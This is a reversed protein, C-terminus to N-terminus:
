ERVRIRQSDVIWLRHEVSEGELVHILRRILSLIGPIDQSKLRLIIIGRHSAPPYLRIDSFGLDLTVLVREERQVTTYLDTDATGSLNQDVVTCCDFGAERLLTAADFPLNEDCKLKM